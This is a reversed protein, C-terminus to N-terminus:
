DLNFRLLCWGRPETSLISGSCLSSDSMRENNRSWRCEPYPTTTPPQNPAVHQVAVSNCICGNCRQKRGQRGIHFLLNQQTLPCLRSLRRQRSSSFQFVRLLAAAWASVYLGIHTWSQVVQVGWCDLVDGYCTDLFIPVCHNMRFRQVSMTPIIANRHMIGFILPLIIYKEIIIFFISAAWITQM